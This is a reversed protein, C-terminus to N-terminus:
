VTRRHPNFSTSAADIAAQITGYGGQGPAVFFQGFANSPQIGGGGGVGFLIWSSTPGNDQKQWVAIPTTLGVAAVQLYLTGAQGDQSVAVPSDVGAQIYHRDLAFFTNESQTKSM